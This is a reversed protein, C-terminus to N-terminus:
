ERDTTQRARLLRVEKALTIREVYPLLTEPVSLGAAPAAPQSASLGFLREFIARPGSFSVALPGKGTIAFGLEALVRTAAEVTEPAAHYEVVNAVTIEVGDDLRSKGSASRLAAVASVRACRDTEM